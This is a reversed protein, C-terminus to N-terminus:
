YGLCWPETELRKMIPAALKSVVDALQKLCSTYVQIKSSQDIKKDSNRFYAAQRDLLLEALVSGSPRAAVGVNHLFQNGDLGFDVYDIFGRMVDVNTESQRLFVQSPKM